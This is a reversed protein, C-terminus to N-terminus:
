RAAKRAAKTKAQPRATHRVTHKATQQVTHRATHRVTRHKRTTVVPSRKFGGKKLSSSAVPKRLSPALHDAALMGSAEPSYLKRYMSANRLVALVYSRTESFPITEVFEAPERYQAWTSWNQVRSGGANYAALTKEWRGSYNDYMDRLYATGLRLNVEPRFLISPRFRRLSAKLLMRGTSPLLQTLGYAQAPSLAEPNFESEQRILGAVVYPDLGQQRANRELEARWPMPYLLRWFSAPADDVPISLYGPVLSKILHLTRHPPIHKGVIEAMHIALVHPQDEKRAGYRLETEALDELGASDLLRAREIRARTAPAPDFTKQFRRVPWVVGNLFARVDSSEAAGFLAPDALRTEALDNYYHNPYREIVDRYYAKAMGFAGGGEALRGLFYLAASSRESGPFKQLHERMLDVADPRRQLYANWAVKWHCYDAQPQDPFSDYCARYLPIYVDAHNAVLSRNGASYLAKLRWPSQPYRELRKVIDAIQDDRDQRRACEALYYLREADAEPSSVELADLYSYAAATQYALFDLVGLRVRAVERDAGAARTLMAEYEIRARRYEGAQTLKEARQFMAQTTPPPYLEGLMGRLDSLAGAAQEAEGSMPHQYYVRQYYAAASAQDNGARYCQALLADGAPQPLQPYNERLMRISEAPKGLEKYARAALLTADGVLPSPPTNKWVPELDAIVSTYDGLDFEAAGLSYAAYDALKPVGARVARLDRVAAAPQKLTQETIGTRLLALSAAVPKAPGPRTVVARRVPKPPKQSPRTSQGGLFAATVLFAFTVGAAGKHLRVPINKAWHPLKKM